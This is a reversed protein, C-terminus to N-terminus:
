SSSCQKEKPDVVWTIEEKGEAHSSNGHVRVWRGWLQSGDPRTEILYPAGSPGIKPPSKSPFTTM